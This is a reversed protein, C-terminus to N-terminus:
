ENGKQFGNVLQGAIETLISGCAPDFSLDEFSKFTKKDSKRKLDVKVYHKESVSVMRRTARLNAKFDQKEDPEGESTVSINMEELYEMRQDFSPASLVVEGEYKADKGKCAEPKYTINM